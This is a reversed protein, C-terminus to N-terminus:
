RCAPVAGAADFEPQDNLKYVTQAWSLCSCQDQDIAATLDDSFEDDPSCTIRRQLIAEPASLFADKQDPDITIAWRLVITMIFV